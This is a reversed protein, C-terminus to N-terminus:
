RIRERDTCDRSRCYRRTNRHLRHAFLIIALFSMGLLIATSGTEPVINAPLGPGIGFASGDSLLRFQGGTVAPSLNTPFTLDFHVGYIDIPRGVQPFLGAFMRGDDSSASGLIEPLELANGLVDTLYGTGHLFGVLGSGNTQLTILTSFSTTVTFLRLFESNAFVFDVSLSQGALATGNLASFPSTMDTSYTGPAGLDIQITTGHIVHPSALIILTIAALLFTKM